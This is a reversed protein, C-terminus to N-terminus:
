STDCSPHFKRDSLCPAKMRNQNKDAPATRM